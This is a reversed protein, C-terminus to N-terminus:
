PNAPGPPGVYPLTPGSPPVAPGPPGVYPLGTNNNPKNTEKSPNPTKVQPKLLNEDVQVTKIPALAVRFGIRYDRCTPDYSPGRRASRCDLTSLNWSGGRVVRRLGKNGSLFEPDKAYGYEYWDRCWEGVNGHMDYLGWVNPAYRGVESTCGLGSEHCNARDSTLASGFSFPTTTGARCAYEWQAETPLTYEYGTPLRGVSRELETVKRCFVMADEWSVNEVPYHDGKQFSSPNSGMVAMWQGQTVEYRGLWFEKRLTVRHQEEGDFRMYESKPSGMMFTGSPIYVLELPANGPLLVIISQLVAKNPLSSTFGDFPVVTSAKAPLKVSPTASSPVVVPAATPPVVVPANKPPLVVPATSPAKVAPQTVVVPAVHPLVVPTKMLNETAPELKIAETESIIVPTPKVSQPESIVVLKSQVAQSSQKSSLEKIDELEKAIAKREEEVDEITKSLERVNKELDKKSVNLTRGWVSANVLRETILKSKEFDVKSKMAQLVKIEKDNDDLHRQIEEIDKKGKVVTKNSTVIDDDISHLSRNIEVEEDKFAAGANAKTKAVYIDAKAKAIAANFVNVATVNADSIEKIGKKLEESYIDFTVNVVKDFLQQALKFKATADEFLGAEFKEEGQVWNEQAEEYIISVFQRADQEDAYEKSKFAVAKEVTSTKRLPINLDIWKYANEAKTYYELAKGYEKGEMARDGAMSQTTFEDLHEGFTQARDITEKELRSRMNQVRTQLNAMELKLNEEEPNEEEASPRSVKEPENPTREGKSLNEYDAYNIFYLGAGVIALLAVIVTFYSPTKALKRQGALVEVFETCNGFRKKPNKSLSKQLADNVHDPLEAIITPRSNLVAKQFMDLNTKFNSFPYKKYGALMEYALAGLSYQDSNYSLTKEEWQEPSMYAYSGGGSDEDVTKCGNPDTVRMFNERITLGLGFDLLVVSKVTEGEIEVMVNSPKVDRHILKKGHAYDLASALRRIVELTMKLGPKPHKELYKELSEGKVYDMIVYFRFEDYELSRVAVIGDHKLHLMKQYENRLADVTKTDNKLADPVMKLAVERGNDKTDKCLCVKGMTGEGEGLWDVFEYRKAILDGKQFVQKRLRERTDSVTQKFSDSEM